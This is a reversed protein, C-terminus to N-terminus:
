RAGTGCRPLRLSGANTFCVQAQRASSCSLVGSSIASMVVAFALVSNWIPYAWDCACGNKKSDPVCDGGRCQFRSLSSEIPIQMEEFLISENEDLGAITVGLGFDPKHHLKPAIREMCRLDVTAATEPTRESYCSKSADISDVDPM